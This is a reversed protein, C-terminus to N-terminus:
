TTDSESYSVAKGLRLLPKLKFVRDMLQRSLQELLYMHELIAFIHHIRPLDITQFDITQFDITQFDYDFQKEM